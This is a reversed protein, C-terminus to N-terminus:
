FVLQHFYFRFFPHDNNLALLQSKANVMTINKAERKRILPQPVEPSGDFVASASASAGAAFVSFGM